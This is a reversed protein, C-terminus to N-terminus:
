ARHLGAKLRAALEGPAYDAVRGAAADAEGEAIARRLAQLKLQEQELLRLGARCLESVNNFEGARLQANIFAEDRETLSITKRVQVANV